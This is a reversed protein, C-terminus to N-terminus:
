REAKCPQWQMKHSIQLMTSFFERGYKKRKNQPTSTFDKDGDTGRRKNGRHQKHATHPLFSDIHARFSSNNYPPWRVRTYSTRGAACRLKAGNPDALAWNGLVRFVNEVAHARPQRSPTNRPSVASTYLPPSIPPGDRFKYPTSHTNVRHPYSHRDRAGRHV